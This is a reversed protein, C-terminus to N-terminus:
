GRPAARLALDLAARMAPSSTELEADPVADELRAELDRAREALRRRELAADIRRRVGAPAFPKPLCDAAGRRIGEVATDFTAYATM